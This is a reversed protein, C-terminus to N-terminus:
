VNAVRELFSAAEDIEDEGNDEFNDVPQLNGGALEDFSVAEASDVRSLSKAEKAAELLNRNYEKKALAKAASEAARARTDAMVEAIFAQQQGMAVKISEPDSWYATKLMPAIGLVSHDEDDAAIWIQRALNGLPNWYFWVKSGPALRRPYGNRDKYMAQYIKKEGPFYLSDEFVITGDNRVVAERADRPDLFSPMDILPLRVLDKQGRQWVERRSLKRMAMLEPHGKLYASIAAAEEPARNALSAVPEWPATESMRFCLEENAQWGELKHDHRDM